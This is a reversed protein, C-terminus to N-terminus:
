GHVNRKLMYQPNECNSHEEKKETFLLTVAMIKSVNISKIKLSQNM